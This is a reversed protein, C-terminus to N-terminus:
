KSLELIKFYLKTCYAINERAENADRLLEFKRRIDNELEQGKNIAANIEETALEKCTSNAIKDM